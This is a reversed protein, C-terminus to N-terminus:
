IYNQKVTWYNNMIFDLHELSNVKIPDLSDEGYYYQVLSQDDIDRVTNDYQVM